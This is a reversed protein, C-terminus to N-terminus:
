SLSTPPARGAEPSWVPRVHDSRTERPDLAGRVASPEFPVSHAGIAGAEALGSCGPCSLTLVTDSHPSRYPIPSGANWHGAAGGSVTRAVDRAVGRQAHLLAHGSAGPAVALLVIWSVAIRLIQRPIM